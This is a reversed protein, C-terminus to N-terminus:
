PESGSKWGNMASVVVLGLMMGAVSGVAMAMSAQGDTNAALGPNQAVSVTEAVFGGVFALCVVILGRGRWWLCSVVSAIMVAGFVQSADWVMESAIM